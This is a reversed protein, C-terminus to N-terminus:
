IIMVSEFPSVNIGETFKRCSLEVKEVRLSIM